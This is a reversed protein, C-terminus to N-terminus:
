APGRGPWRQSLASIESLPLTTRKQGASWASWADMAFVHSLFTFDCNPMLRRREYRRVLAIRV